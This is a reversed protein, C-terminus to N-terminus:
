ANSVSTVRFLKVIAHGDDNKNLEIEHPYDLEQLRMGPYDKKITPLLTENVWTSVATRSGYPILAVYHEITSFPGKSREWQKSFDKIIKGFAVSKLGRIPFLPKLEFRALPEGNSGLFCCDIRGDVEWALTPCRPESLAEKLFAPWFWSEGYCRVTNEGIKTNRGESSLQKLEREEREIAKWMLLAFIEGLEMEKEEQSSM